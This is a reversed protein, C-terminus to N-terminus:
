GRHLLKEGFEEEVSESGHISQLLLAGVVDGSVKWPPCLNSPPCLNDNAHGVVPVHELFTSGDPPDDEGKVPEKM